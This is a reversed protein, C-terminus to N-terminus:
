RGLEKEKEMAHFECVLTNAPLIQQRSVFPGGLGFRDM